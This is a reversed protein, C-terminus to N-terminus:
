VLNQSVCDFVGTLEPINSNWAEGVNFLWDYVGYVAIGCARGKAVEISAGEFINILDCKNSCKLRYWCM